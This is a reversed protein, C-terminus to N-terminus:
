RKKTYFYGKIPDFISNVFEVELIDDFNLEENNILIIKDKINNIMGEIKKFDHDVFYTVRVEIKARLAARLKFENEQLQQPDLAPKEKHDMEAWICRLEEVQEPLM